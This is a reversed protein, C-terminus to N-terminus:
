EEDDVEQIMPTDSMRALEKEAEKDGDNAAKRLRAARIPDSNAEDCCANIVLTGDDKYYFPEIKKVAM